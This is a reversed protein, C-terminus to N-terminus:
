TRNCSDINNSGIASRLVKQAFYNLENTTKSCSFVGVSSGGRRDRAAALGAAARDLAEDWSAERLAGNDRVLPKTLRPLRKAM